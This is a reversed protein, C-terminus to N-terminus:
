FRGAARLGGGDLSAWPSVDWKARGLEAGASQEAKRSGWDTALIGVLITAVGVGATVGALVNTRRQKSLGEQYLACNEGETGCESKVRDAGPNNVTDVGSWITIGGLVGTVGAGVFFIVPSWGRSSAAVPEDKSSTPEASGASPESSQQPGRPTPPAPPAAFDIQAQGGQEADVQRSESLSDAWGARVTVSGPAVFLIRQTDPAGHVIKGGVTLECPADCNATIQVLEARARGEVESTLKLLNADDPYRKTALAALTAARALEGAKDRARIALELAASSPASTDAMEFQEAAEVYEGAKYAERGRDFADAAARVQAPTPEQQASATLPAGLVLALVSVRLAARM